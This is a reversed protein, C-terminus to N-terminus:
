RIMLSVVSTGLSIDPITSGERVHMVACDSLGHGCMHQVPSAFNSRAAMAIHVVCCEDTAGESIQVCMTDIQIAPSEHSHHKGPRQLLLELGQARRTLTKERAERADVCWLSRRRCGPVRTLCLLRSVTDMCLYKTESSSTSTRRCETSIIQTQGFGTNGHSLVDISTM